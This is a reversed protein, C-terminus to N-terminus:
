KKDLIDFLAFSKLHMDGHYSKKGCRDISIKIATDDYSWRQTNSAAEM